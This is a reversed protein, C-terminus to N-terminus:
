PRRLCTSGTITVELICPVSMITRVSSYKPSPLFGERGVDGTGGSESELLKQRAKVRGAAALRRDRYRNDNELGGSRRRSTGCGRQERTTKNRGEAGPGASKETRRCLEQNQEDPIKGEHEPRVPPDVMRRYDVREAHDMGPVRQSRDTADRSRRETGRSQRGAYGAGPRDTGERRNRTNARHCRATESGVM